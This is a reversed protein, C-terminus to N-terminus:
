RDSASKSVPRFPAPGCNESKREKKAFEQLQELRADWEVDPGYLSSNGLRDFLQQDHDFEKPLGNRERYADQAHYAQYESAGRSHSIEHHVWSGWDIKEERSAGRPPPEPVLICRDPLGLQSRHLTVQAAQLPDPPALPPLYLAEPAEAVAETQGEYALKRLLAGAGSGSVFAVACRKSPGPLLRVNAQQGDVTVAFSRASNDPSLHSGLGQAASQDNKLSM